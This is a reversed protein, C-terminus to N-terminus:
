DWVCIWENPLCPLDTVPKKIKISLPFLDMFDISFSRIGNISIDTIFINSFNKGIFITLNKVDALDSPRSNSFISRRFSEEIMGDAHSINYLYYLAQFDSLADTHLSWNRIEEYMSSMTKVNYEISQQIGHENVSLRRVFKEWWNQNGYGLVCTSMQEGTIIISTNPQTWSQTLHNIVDYLLLIRIVELWRIVLKSILFIVGSCHTGSYQFLNHGM